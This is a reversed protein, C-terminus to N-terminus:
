PIPCCRMRKELSIPDPSARLTASAKKFKEEAAARKDGPNKDPHWRLSEKRYAQGMKLALSPRLMIRVKKIEADSADKNIGLVQFVNTQSSDILPFSRVKYYATNNVM